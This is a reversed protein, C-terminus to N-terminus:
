GGSGGGFLVGGFRCRVFFVGLRFRAHGFVGRFRGWGFVGLRFRAHGFLWDGMLQSVGVFIVKKNYGMQRKM